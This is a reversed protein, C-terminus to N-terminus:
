SLDVYKAMVVLSLSASLSQHARDDLTHAGRLDLHRALDDPLDSFAENCEDADSLTVGVGLCAAQDVLDDPKADELVVLALHVEGEGVDVSRKEDDALESEIAVHPPAPTRAELERHRGVPGLGKVVVEDLKRTATM